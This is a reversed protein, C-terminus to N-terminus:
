AGVKQSQSIARFRVGDWYVYLVYRKNLQPTWAGDVIDDGQWDIGSPATVQMPSKGITLDMEADFLSNTTLSPLKFNISQLSAGRYIVNNELTTQATTLTKVTPIYDKGAAGAAGTEGKDGKSGTEGKEGAPGQPGTEGKDGKAGADGTEGKEGAPGQPGTEGKAAILQYNENDDTPTVGVVQKLTLYSSGEYSVITLTEYTTEPSYTGGNTVAVKGLITTIM